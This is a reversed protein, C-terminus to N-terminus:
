KITLAGVQAGSSFTGWVDNTGEVFGALASNSLNWALWSNAESDVFVWYLKKKTLKAKCKFTEVTTSTSGFNPLNKIKGSCLVKGKPKGDPSSCPLSKCDKTLYVTGGNTGTVFGVGVSITKTTGTKLSAVQNAPTYQTGIPSGDSVTWGTGAQYGAGCIDDYFGVCGYPNAQHAQPLKGMYVTSRGGNITITRGDEALAAVSLLVVLALCIVLTKKLPTDEMKLNFRTLTQPHAPNSLSEANHDPSSDAFRWLLLDM